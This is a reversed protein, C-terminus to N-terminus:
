LAWPNEEFFRAISYKGSVNLKRRIRSAKTHITQASCCLIKSIELPKFYYYLLCCIWIEISYLFPYKEQIKEVMRHPLVEQFESWAMVTRGKKQWNSLEENSKMIRKFHLEQYKKRLLPSYEDRVCNGYFVILPRDKERNGTLKYFGSVSNHEKSIQEDICM